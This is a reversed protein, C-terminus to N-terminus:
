RTRTFMLEVAAVTYSMWRASRTSRALSAAICLFEKEHEGYFRPPLM